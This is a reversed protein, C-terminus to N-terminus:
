QKLYVVGQLHGAENALIQILDSVCNYFVLCLLEQNVTAIGVRVARKLEQIINPTEQMLM